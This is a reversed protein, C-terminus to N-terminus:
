RVTCISDYRFRDLKQINASNGYGSVEMQPAEGSSRIPKPVETRHKQPPHRAAACERCFLHGACCSEPPPSVTPIANRLEKLKNQIDKYARAHCSDSDSKVQLSVPLFICSPGEFHYRVNNQCPDRGQLHAQLYGGAVFTRIKVPTHTEFYLVRTVMDM